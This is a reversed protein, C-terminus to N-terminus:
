RYIDARTMTALSGECDGQMICAQIAQGENINVLQSATAAILSAQM